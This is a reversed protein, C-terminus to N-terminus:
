LHWTPCFIYLQLRFLYIPQRFSSIAIFTFGLMILFSLTERFESIKYILADETWYTEPNVHLMDLSPGTLRMAEQAASWTSTVIEEEAGYVIVKM